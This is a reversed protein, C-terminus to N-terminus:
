SGVPYRSPGDSAHAPGDPLAFTAPSRGSAVLDELDRVEVEDDGEYRDYRFKGAACASGLALALLAPLLARM